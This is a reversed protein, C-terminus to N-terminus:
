GTWTNSSNRRQAYITRLEPNPSFTILKGKWPEDSLESVLIGLAVSVEMPTGCMSGSVDCIALCNKLKGKKALDSVMRKWQLEAVENGNDDHLILAIILHSLLAGAAVKAKGARVSELYDEFRERERTLFKAGSDLNQIDTNLFDAFLDSVRDHLFKYGPDRHYREVAKNAMDIKKEKREKRSLPSREKVWGQRRWFMGARPPKM